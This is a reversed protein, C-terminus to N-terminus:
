VASIEVLGYSNSINKIKLLKKSVFRYVLSTLVNKSSSKTMTPIGDPVQALCDYSFDMGYLHVIRSKCM